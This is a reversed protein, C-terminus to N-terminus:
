TPADLRVGRVRALGVALATGVACALLGLVVLAVGRVLDDAPLGLATTVFRPVRKLQDVAVCLVYPLALCAVWYATSRVARRRVWRKALPLPAYPLLVSVVNGVGLWTMIPYLVGPLTLELRHEPEM